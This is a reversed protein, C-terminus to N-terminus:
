QFGEQRLLDLRGTAVLYRRRRERPPITRAQQPARKKAADQARFQDLSRAQAEYTRALKETM